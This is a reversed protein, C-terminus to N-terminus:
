TVSMESLSDQVVRVMEPLADVVSRPRFGFEDVIRDIVVAVDEICPANEAVDWGCGCISSLREVIARHTTLAGSAVNYIRHVGRLAIAEIMAVVDNLHVYDKCSAASTRLSVHGNVAERVISALFNDSADGPASVNSLRVVRGRMRRASLTLAEGALKSIDYLHDSDRPDVIFASEEHGSPAGRYLRASALYSFSAADGDALVRAPLAVHPEAVELPRHRFDATLGAAWVVHGLESGRWSDDDRGPVEVDHGQTELHRVLASGIFGRGGFVTFRAM